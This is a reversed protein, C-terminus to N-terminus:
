TGTAKQMDMELGTEFFYYKVPPLDFLERATEILHILIDSDSGGSYSCM